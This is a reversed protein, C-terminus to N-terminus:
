LAASSESLAQTKSEAPARAKGIRSTVDTIIAM